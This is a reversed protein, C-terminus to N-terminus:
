CRMGRFCFPMVGMKETFKFVKFNEATDRSVTSEVKSERHLKVILESNKSVVKRHGETLVRFDLDGKASKSM